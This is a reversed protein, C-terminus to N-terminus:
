HKCSIQYLRNKEKISIQISKTLWPKLYFKTNRRSLKRIPAHTDLCNLFINLFKSFETNSDLFNRGLDSNDLSNELCDLFEAESFKSFDWKLIECRPSNNQLMKNKPSM